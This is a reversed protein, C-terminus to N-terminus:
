CFCGLADANIVAGQYPTYQAYQTVQEVLNKGTFCGYGTAYPGVYRLRYRKDVIMLAPVSSLLRRLQPVEEINLRVLEFAKAQFKKVLQMQHPESLTECFCRQKTGIHVISGRKIHLEKLLSTLTQDFQPASSEYRLTGDPDFESLQRQGYLLLAVLLSAAWIM